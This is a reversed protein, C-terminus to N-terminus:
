KIRRITYDDNDAVFLRKGDTIIGMPYAFRAASGSGDVAGEPGASGAITIVEGTSIVVKRIINNSSDSVYLNKGDTTIGEPDYFQAASGTGDVSGQVGPSGALTTVVGTSLVIKRITNAYDAVYLNAGDTTLASPYTFLAATGTGDDTGAQGAYGALTTVEGTAIVIKRITCNGTDTVYLNKGDTTIGWFYSFRAASGTGDTSGPQGSSGALTTVEGTAIVIKRIVYNRGDAVYLNTGDTTIGVPTNFLAASGTGDAFGAHGAVGAITTVEGTAIVIKRIAHNDTEYLNTGDTALGGPFYFRAASGTGDATGSTWAEGALTTVVNALALTNGQIAGGMQQTTPGTNAPVSTGSGGCAALVFLLLALFVLNRKM